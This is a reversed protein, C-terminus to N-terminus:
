KSVQTSAQKSVQLLTFFSIRRKRLGHFKPDFEGKPTIMMLTRQFLSTGVIGEYGVFM